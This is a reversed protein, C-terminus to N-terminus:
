EVITTIPSEGTNAILEKYPLPKGELGRVVVKMQKETDLSRMNHRGEFEAAYRHPHKPSLNHYTGHIGRKINSWFKEVHNTPGFDGRGHNVAFHKRKQNLGAYGRGEDTYVVANETTNETVFRHMTEKDANANNNDM